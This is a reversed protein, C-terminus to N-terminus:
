ENKKCRGWILVIANQLTHAILPVLIIGGSALFLLALVIGTVVKQIFTALGYYLHNFGYALSSILIYGWIPLGLNAIMIVSWLQRYLFEECIAMVITLVFGIGSIKIWTSNVAWGLIRIGSLRLTVAGVLIELGVLLPSILIAIIAWHLDPFLRLQGKIPVLSISLLLLFCTVLVSGALYITNTHKAASRPIFNAAIQPLSVPYVTAMMVLLSHYLIPTNM